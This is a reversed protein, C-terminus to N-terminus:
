GIQAV